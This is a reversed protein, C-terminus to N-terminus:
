CSVLRQLVEVVTAGFAVVLALNVLTALHGVAVLVGDRELLGIAYILIPVIFILNSGPIPLPLALGLGQLVVGLGAFSWLPGRMVLEFRPRTIRSLWRTRQGLMRVVRDLMSMKLARARARRPLWPRHRGVLMQVGCLAVALGFPTSLGFFPIALLGLVALLFGFGADQAKDVIQGVTITQRARDALDPAPEELAGLELLLEPLRLRRPTAPRAEDVSPDVRGVSARAGTM